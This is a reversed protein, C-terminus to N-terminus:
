HRLIRLKNVNFSTWFIPVIFFQRSLRLSTFVPHRSLSTRSYLSQGLIRAITSLTEYGTLSVNIKKLKKIELNMQRLIEM